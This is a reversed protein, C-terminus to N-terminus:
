LRLILTWNRQDSLPDSADMDISVLVVSPQEEQLQQLAIRIDQFRGQLRIRYKTKPHNESPNTLPTSTKSHVSVLREEKQVPSAILGGDVCFLNNRRLLELSSAVSKAPSNGPLADRLWQSRRTTISELSQSLAESEQAIKVLETQVSSLKTKNSDLSKPLKAYNVLRKELEVRKSQILRQNPLFCFWLFGIVILISSLSIRLAIALNGSPASTM